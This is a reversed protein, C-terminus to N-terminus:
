IQQLVLNFFENENRENMMAKTRRSGRRNTAESNPQQIHTLNYKKLFSEIQLILNSKKAMVNM